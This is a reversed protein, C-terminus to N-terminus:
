DVIRQHVVVRKVRTSCVNLNKHDNEENILFVVMTEIVSLLYLLVGTDNNTVGYTLVM